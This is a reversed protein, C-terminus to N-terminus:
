REIEDKGKCSKLIIAAYSTEYKSFTNGNCADPQHKDAEFLTAKKGSTRSISMSESLAVAEAM